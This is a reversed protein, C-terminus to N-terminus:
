LKNQVQQGQQFFIYAMLFVYIIVRRTRSDVKIPYVKRAHTQLSKSGTIKVKACFRASFCFVIQVKIDIKSRLDIKHLKQFTTVAGVCKQLLAPITRDLHQLLQLRIVETKLM